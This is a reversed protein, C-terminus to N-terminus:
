DYWWRQKHERFAESKERVSRWPREIFTDAEEDIFDEWGM